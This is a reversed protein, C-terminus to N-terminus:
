LEPLIWGAIYGNTLTPLAEELPIFMNETCFPNYLAPFGFATKNFFVPNM